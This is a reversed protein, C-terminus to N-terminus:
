HYHQNLRPPLPAISAILRILVLLLLLNYTFFNLESQKELHFSMLVTMDSFLSVSLINYNTGTWRFKLNWYEWGQVENTPQTKKDLVFNQEILLSRLYDVNEFGKEIDNETLLIKGKYPQCNASICYLVFILSLILTKM